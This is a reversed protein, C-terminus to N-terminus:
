RAIIFKAALQALKAAIEPGTDVAAAYLLGGKKVEGLRGMVVAEVDAATADVAYALVATATEAGESGVVEAPPSFIYKSSATVMGLVSGPELKGAGSRITVTDFSISGHDSLVFGLNRPGETVKAYAM